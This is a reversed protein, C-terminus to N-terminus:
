KIKPPSTTTHMQAHSGIEGDLIETATIANGSTTGSIHLKDGVIIDSVSASSVKKVKANDASVTYVTGNDGTLTITNGSVSTVTGTTGPAGHPGGFGRMGGMQGVVVVATAKISDGNVTGQVMVHNGVVIESANITVPTPREQGSSNNDPASMKQLTASGIDVNYSTNSRKDTVTLTNGSVATVEGIAAPVVGRHEGRGNQKTETSVETSDAAYTQLAVAGVTGTILGLASFFIAVKKSTNM